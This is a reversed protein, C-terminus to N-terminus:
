DKFIANLFDLGNENEGVAQGSQLKQAVLYGDYAFLWATLYGFGCTLTGVVLWIVAAIIAKKQQGMLFYGAAGFFFLNLVAIIIPNTDPKTIMQGM